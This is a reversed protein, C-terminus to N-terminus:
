KTNINKPKIFILAILGAAAVTAIIILATLLADNVPNEAPPVPETDEPVVFKLKTTKITAINGRNDEAEFVIEYSAEQDAPTLGSVVFQNKDDLEVLTRTGDGHLAYVTFKHKDQNVGSANDSVTAMSVTYKMDEEFDVTELEVATITPGVNDEVMLWFHFDSTTSNSVGDTVKYRFWWQGISNITVANNSVYTYDSTSNPAKYGLQINVNDYNDIGDSDSTDLAELSSTGVERPLPDFKYTNGSAPAFIIKSGGFMERVHEEIAADNLKPAKTDKKAEVELHLTPTADAEYRYINFEYYNEQTSGNDPDPVLYHKLDGTNKKSFETASSGDKVELTWGFGLIDICYFPFIYDANYAAVLGSITTTSSSTYDVITNGGDKKDRIIIATATLPGGSNDLSQKGALNSMSYVKIISDKDENNDRVGITLTAMSKYFRLTSIEGAAISLEESAGGATILTFVGGQFKITLNSFQNGNVGSVDAYTTENQENDKFKYQILSTDSDYKLYLEVWVTKDDFDKFTFVTEKFSIATFGFNIEFLEMDLTHKYAFSSNKATKKFIVQAGGSLSSSIETDGENKQFITSGYVNVAGVTGSTTTFLVAVAFILLVAILVFSTIKRKTM